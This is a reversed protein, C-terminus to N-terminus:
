RAVGDAAELTGHAEGDAFASAGLRLLDGNGTLVDDVGARLARPGAAERDFLAFWLRGSSRGGPPVSVTYRLWVGRPRLPDVARLYYSEYHGRGPRVSPWRPAAPALM